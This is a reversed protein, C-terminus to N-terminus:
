VIETHCVNLFKIFTEIDIQSDILTKEFSGSYIVKTIIIKKIKEIPFTYLCDDSSLILYKKETM